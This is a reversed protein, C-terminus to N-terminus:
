SAYSSNWLSKNYIGMNTITFATNYSIPWDYNIINTPYPIGITHYLGMTTGSIVPSKWTDGPKLIISENDSVAIITGNKTVNLITFVGEITYPFSYVGHNFAGYRGQTQPGHLTTMQGLLIKFSDNVWDGNSLLLQSTLGSSNNYDFSMEPLPIEWPEAPTYPTTGILTSNNYYDEYVAVYKNSPLIDKSSNSNYYTCGCILSGIIIAGIILLSRKM